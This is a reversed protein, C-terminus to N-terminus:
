RAAGRLTFLIQRWCRRCCQVFEDRFDQSFIVCVLPISVARSAGSSIAWTLVHYRESPMLICQMDKAYQQVVLLPAFSIIYTVLFTVTTFTAVVDVRGAQRGRVAREAAPATAAERGGDGQIGEGPGAGASREKAQRMTTGLSSPVLLVERQAVSGPTRSDGAGSAGRHIGPEVETESRCCIIQKDGCCEQDLTGLHITRTTVATEQSTTPHGSAPQRTDASNNVPQGTFSMDKVPQQSDAVTGNVPQGTAATNDVPRKTTTDNVPQGTTTTDNVPQGTAATNSVPQKTTTDNVPQGTATTDNVPQRTVTADSVPEQHARSHHVASLQVGPAQAPASQEGTTLQGSGSRETCGSFMKPVQNAIPLCCQVTAQGNQPTSIVRRRSAIAKRFIRVYCFLLVAFGVIYKISIVIQLEGHKMKRTEIAITYGASTRGFRSSCLITLYVAAFITQVVSTLVPIATFLLVNQWKTPYSHNKVVILFRLLTITVILHFNSSATLVYLMVRTTCFQPFRLPLEYGEILPIFVWLLQNVCLLCVLYNVITHLKKSFCITLLVALNLVITLLISVAAVLLFIAHTRATEAESDGDQPECVLESINDPTYRAYCELQEEVQLLCQSPLNPTLGDPLSSTVNQDEAIASPSTRNDAM